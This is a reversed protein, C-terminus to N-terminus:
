NRATRLYALQDVVTGIDTAKPLAQVLQYRELEFFRPHQFLVELGPLQALFAQEAQLYEPKLSVLFHDQPGPPQGFLEQSRSHISLLLWLATPEQELLIELRQVQLEGEPMKWRLPGQSAATLRAM